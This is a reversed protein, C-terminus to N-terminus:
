KTTTITTTMKTGKNLIPSPSRPSQEAVQVVPEPLIYRCTFTDNSWDWQESSSTDYSLVASKQKFEDEADVYGVTISETTIDEAFRGPVQRVEAPFIKDDSIRKFDVIRKEFDTSLKHQM